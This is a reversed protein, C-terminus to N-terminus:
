SVSVNLHESSICFLFVCISHDGRPQRLHKTLIRQQVFQHAELSIDKCVQPNSRQKTPTSFKYHQPQVMFFIVQNAKSAQKDMNKDYHLPSNSLRKTNSKEQKMGAVSPMATADRLSSDEWYKIYSPFEVQIEIFLLGILITDNPCRIMKM